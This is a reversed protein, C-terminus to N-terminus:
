LLHGGAGLLGAEGDLLDGAARDADGFTGLPLDPEDVRSALRGLLRGAGGGARALDDFLADGEGRLDGVDGVLGVQEGEVRRDLSRAGSLGATTERDDGVLHALEGLRGETVASCVRVAKWPSAEEISATEAQTLRTTSTVSCTAVTASSALAAM